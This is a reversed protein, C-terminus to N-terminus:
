VLTIRARAETASTGALVAFVDVPGAQWSAAGLGTPEATLKVAVTQPAGTCSVDAAAWGWALPTASRDQRATVFLSDQKGATCTVTLDVDLETPDAAAIQAGSVSLSSPTPVATDAWGPAAVVAQVAIVSTVGAIRLVSSFRM